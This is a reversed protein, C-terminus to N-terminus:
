SLAEVYRRSSGRTMGVQRAIKGDAALATLSENMTVMGHQRGRVIEDDIQKFRSERILNSIGETNVLLEFAAVRGGNVSAVLRQSLIGRLAKALLARQLDRDSEACTEIIRSIADKASHNHMTAIVLHGTDAACLAGTMTAADRLETLCIIDPDQRLTRKLVDSWDDFDRGYELHRIRCTKEEHYYEIPDGLIVVSAGEARQNLHAVAANLTTSKGSGTSGTILVIGERGQLLEAFRPPTGLDDLQPLARAIHRLVVCPGERTGAYSGRFFEGRFTAAFDGSRGQRLSPELLGGVEDVNLPPEQGLLTLQGDIRWAPRKGADFHWDSAGRRLGEDILREIRAALLTSM